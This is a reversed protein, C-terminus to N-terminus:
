VEENRVGWVGVATGLAAGVTIIEEVEGLGIGFGLFENCAIVIGGLVAVVAKRYRSLNM